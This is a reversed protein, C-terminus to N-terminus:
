QATPGRGADTNSPRGGGEAKAGTSHSGSADMNLPKLLEDGGPMPDRGDDIRAENMTLFGGTIGRAYNAYRTTVDGRILQSLDFDVFMGQARLDFDIDLKERWRSVYGSLTLNIYEQAQQSINNDTSRSLDGMMHLPVRFARAIEAVQFQRSAIFQAQEANMSLPQFKLGQELVAIKGANQLGTKLDRWDQALRKAAPESLKQDTQLVGSLSAQNGMWRAAQQEYALSLGIAEKALMMRSSGLLGGLSMGRIHLMDEAPIFFPENRLVSMMHLGSPTVRYFIDGDAAERLAVWNANVPVLQIVRGAGNRIKVAYANGHLVLNAMMTERFVFGNQLDNPRYLLTYLEHDRAVNRAGTKDDLRYISPTLKAFDESLITVCAMVTTATLATQQDVRIGAISPNSWLGGSWAMEGSGDSSRTNTRGFLRGLASAIGM